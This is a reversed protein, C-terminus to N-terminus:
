PLERLFVGMPLDMAPNHAPISVCRAHGERECCLVHRCGCKNPDPKQTVWSLEARISDISSYRIPM